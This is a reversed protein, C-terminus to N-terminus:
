HLIGLQKDGHVGVLRQNKPGVMIDMGEMPIARIPAPPYSALDAAGAFTEARSQKNESVRRLMPVPLECRQVCEGGRTKTWNMSTLIQIQM